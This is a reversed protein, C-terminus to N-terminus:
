KSFKKEKLDHNFDEKRFHKYDRYEIQRPNQKPYTTKFVSLTLNHCDSMGVHISNTKYFSNPSNTLILDITSPNVESKFCTPDKILNKLNNQYLFTDIITEGEQSNFDGALVVKQYKSYTDLGKNINDFFYQDPQSPPHYTGCLLWKSKRFNIELFLAEIDDPLIHKNLQKSPIDERVYIIVGGGNRNRDLRFPPSYGNIKFQSLPFSDDLKTETVIFIDFHGQVLMKLQDFDPAM